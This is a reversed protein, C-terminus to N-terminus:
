STLEASKYSETSRHPIMAGTKKPKVARYLSDVIGGGERIVLIQNAKVQKLLDKKGSPWQIEFRLSVAFSCYGGDGGL